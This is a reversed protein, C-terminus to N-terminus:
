AIRARKDSGRGCSGSAGEVLRTQAIRERVEAGGREEAIERDIWHATAV